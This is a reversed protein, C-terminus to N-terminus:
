RPPSHPRRGQGGAGSFVLRQGRGSQKDPQTYVAIIDLKLDLLAALAPVSFDPTGMFIIKTTM